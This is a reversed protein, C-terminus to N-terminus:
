AALRHALVCPIRIGRACEWPFTFVHIGLELLCVCVCVFMYCIYKYMYVVILSFQAGIGIPSRATCASSLISLLRFARTHMFISFIIIHRYEPVIGGCVRM